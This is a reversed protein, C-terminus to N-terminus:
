GIGTGPAAGAPPPVAAVFPVAGAPGALGDAALLGVEALDTAGLAPDGLDPAGLAADVLGDSETLGAVAGFGDAGAVAALPPDLGAAPWPCLFFGCAPPVGARPLRGALM